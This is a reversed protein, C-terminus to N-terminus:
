EDEGDQNFIINNTGIGNFLVDNGRSVTVEINYLDGINRNQVDVINNYIKVKGKTSKINLKGTSEENRKVYIEIENNSENEVEIETITQNKFSSDLYLLIKRKVENSKSGSLLETVKDKDLLSIEISSTGDVKLVLKRSVNIPLIVDNDSVEQLPANLLNIKFDFDSNIINIKNNNSDEYKFINDKKLTVNIKYGDRTFDGIFDYKKDAEIYKNIFEGDLLQFSSNSQLKIDNYVKIEELIKQGIYASKQKYESKKNTKLSTMVMGSVPIILISLLAVSIIVEILTIGKIKDKTMKM